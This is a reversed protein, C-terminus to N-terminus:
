EFDEGCPSTWSAGRFSVIGIDSSDIAESIRPYNLRERIRNTILLREREINFDTGKIGGKVRTTGFRKKNYEVIDERTRDAQADNLAALKDALETEEVTSTGIGGIIERITEQELETFAETPM